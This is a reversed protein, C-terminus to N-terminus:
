RQTYGRREEEFVNGDDGVVDVKFNNVKKYDLPDPDEPAKLEKESNPDIYEWM